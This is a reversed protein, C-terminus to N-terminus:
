RRVRHRPPRGRQWLHRPRCGPALSRHAMQGIGRLDCDEVSFRHGSVAWVAPFVGPPPERLANSLHAHGEVSQEPLANRGRRRGWGHVGPTGRRWRVVREARCELACTLGLSCFRVQPGFPRGGPVLRGGRSWRPASIWDGLPVTADGTRIQAERDEHPDAARGVHAHVPHRKLYQMAGQM